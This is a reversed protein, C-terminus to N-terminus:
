PKLRFSCINHLSCKQDHDQSRTRCASRRLSDFRLIRVDGLQFRLQCFCAGLKSFSAYRDILRVAVRDRQRVVGLHVLVHQVAAAGVELAALRPVRVARSRSIM